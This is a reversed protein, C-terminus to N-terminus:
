NQRETKLYELVGQAAVKGSALCATLLYGGTPADWDLMEGACFVGPHVSLMLNNDVASLSVGGATSIAEEVPRAKYVPMSLAKIAAALMAPDSLHEAAQEGLLERLLVVKLPSLGLRKRLYNGMSEKGRPKRLREEIAAVTHDPMLDWTLTAVGHDQLCQQISRSAAYILSGQIGERSILAEGRRRFLEQGNTIVSLTATKIPQGAFEQQIYTSWPYDFGCNSATLPQTEVGAKNLVSLWQGDSGLRLWSGGGMALICAQTRVEEIAGATSFQHIQEAGSGVDQHQWGLWQYRTKIVVGLSDLHRLWARLLPSAKKQVPFVRGSSGVFTEIGLSAAWQRVADADMHQLWSVIPERPQYRQIFSDAPENHTLNLGGVGARLFKRGPAPMKDYVQVKQGAEALLQAAMLGAPGAGVIIVPLDAM